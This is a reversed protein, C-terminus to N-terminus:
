LDIISTVKIPVSGLVNIQKEGADLRIRLYGKPPLSFLCFNCEIEAELVCSKCELWTRLEELHEATAEEDYSLGALFDNTLSLLETDEENQVFQCFSAEQPCNNDEDNCSLFLSSCFFAFLYFKVKM